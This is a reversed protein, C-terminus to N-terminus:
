LSQILETGFSIALISELGGASLQVLRQLLQELLQVIVDVAALRARQSAAGSV